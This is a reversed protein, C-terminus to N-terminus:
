GPEAGTRRMGCFHAGQRCQIRGHRCLSRSSRRQYEARDRCRCASQVHNGAPLQVTGAGMGRAPERRAGARCGASGSFHQRGGGRGQGGGQVSTGGHQHRHDQRQCRHNRPHASQNDKPLSQAFLEIDGVVEIGRAIAREVAPDRLPVGPSIAILEIGDFLADNFERLLDARRCCVNRAEALGPPASRSDAVRLRASQASLWRVCPYGPRASVLCWCRNTTTDTMEAEHRHDMFARRRWHRWLTRWSVSTERLAITSNEM